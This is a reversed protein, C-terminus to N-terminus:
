YSMGNCTMMNDVANYHKRYDADAKIGATQKTLYEQYEDSAKCAAIDADILAMTETTIGYATGKISAVLIKGAANVPAALRVIWGTDRNGDITIDQEICRTWNAKRNGQSDLEHKVSTTISIKNGKSNTWETVRTM